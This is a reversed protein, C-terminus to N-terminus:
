ADLKCKFIENHLDRIEKLLDRIEQIKQRAEDLGQVDVRVKIAKRNDEVSPSNEKQMSM